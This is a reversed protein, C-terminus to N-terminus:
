VKLFYTDAKEPNFIESAWFLTVLEGTGINTIHHTYGPPIDVVKFEKGSVRHETVEIGDIQRFRIVADGEVVMFKETKTHHYHNGRTIGPNTRSVFIQGFASSKMMEALSGREDTRIQLPYVFEEGEFCSLYTAYLAKVFQSDFGPLILTRRSERFSMILEALEGLTISYSTLDGGFAFGSEQNEEKSPIEGILAYVVDDIYTLDISRNPDSITVPIGHAINHCFTATVSNYNPRCWKGFLNKFRYVVCRAGTNKSFAQLAREADLKSSGYPNDFEAQISSALIIKPTRELRQLILCLEETLGTNGTKFEEENKPRNVGALHFIVEVEGLMGVLEAPVNDCDFELVRVHEMTRLVSCLNRGVFGKAGTVLITM